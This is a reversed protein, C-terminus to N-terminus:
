TEKDESGVVREKGSGLKEMIKVGMIFNDPWIHIPSYSLFCNKVLELLLAM